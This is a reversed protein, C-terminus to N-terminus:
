SKALSTLRGFSPALCVKIADLLISLGKLAEQLGPVASTGPVDQLLGVVKQLGAFAVSQSHRNRDHDNKKLPSPSRMKTVAADLTKRM